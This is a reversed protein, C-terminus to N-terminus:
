KMCLWLARHLDEANDVWGTLRPSVLSRNVTFFMPAIAEDDLMVQEARSLTRARQAADAQEDAEDLLADYAPNRYDGYNQAGTDSKLLGLFTLPDNFDAYWAMAGVQYDRDAYAAFVVPGDNQVLSAEVGISRWDAQVAQVLLLTNSDSSTKMVIKLPHQPTYGAQALLAKAEIQRQALPEDAWRTRPGFAYNATGPPVFSYASREGARMLKRTIFDRDISESLARRVRVDQFAKVDHTNFSLYSTALATHVRVYAPMVKRLREIRNSQFTMAVDLEGREVRRELAIADPAAFYDVRDLCVKRADFFYPNRVMSIHDGLRWSVLKYPGDSVYVGPKVWADGYKEVVHRPAPYFSQHKTLELLYPAPHELTLRLTYPDVASAGLAQPPAKGENVAQGNKLVYALYAYVSATNPDLLRRLGFVFDDATVPEGDSWRADHRLHFTWTLGDPSTEWRTAIGPVPSGDPGDETLGMMMEGIVWSESLLNAKQPDLTAPELALGYELCKWGAPCAPRHPKGQCGALLLAAASLAFILRRL